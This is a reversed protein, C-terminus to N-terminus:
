PRLALLRAIAHQHPGEGHDSEVTEERYKVIEWGLFVSELEGPEWLYEVADVIDPPAAIGATFLAISVMGRNRTHVQMRRLLLLGEHRPLFHLVGHCVFGDFLAKPQWDALDAILTEVQVGEEAALLNLKSIAQRSNDVALVKFGARALYIANRGEGCGLDAVRGTTLYQRLQVVTASPERGWYPERRAYKDSWIDAPELASDDMNM